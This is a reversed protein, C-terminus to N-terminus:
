RNWRGVPDQGDADDFKGREGINVPLRCAHHEQDVFRSRATQEDVVHVPQQIAHAVIATGRGPREVDMHAM